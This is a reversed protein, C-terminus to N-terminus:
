AIRTAKPLGADPTIRLQNTQNRQADKRTHVLEALLPAQAYNIMKAM